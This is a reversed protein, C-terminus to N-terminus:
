NQTQWLKKGEKKKKAENKAKTAGTKTEVHHWTAVRGINEKKVKADGGARRTAQELSRTRMGGGEKKKDERAVDWDEKFGKKSQKKKKKKESSAGIFVEGPGAVGGGKGGGKKHCMEMGERKHGGIQEEQSDPEEGQRDWQNSECDKIVGAPCKNGKKV